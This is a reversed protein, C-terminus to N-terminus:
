KKQEGVAKKLAVRIDRERASPPERVSLVIQEGAPLAMLRNLDLETLGRVRVGQIALIEMGTSLGARGAASNARVTEVRLFSITPTETGANPQYFPRLEVSALVASVRLAPLMVAESVAPLLLAPAATEDVAAAPGGAAEKMRSVSAQFRTHDQLRTFAEDNEARFVDRFGADVAQELAELAGQKNRNFARVRALDYLTRAQDPRLAVAMELMGEAREYDAEELLGRVTERAMSSFSAIARRVMQREGSDEPAEAKKRLDAALKQKRRTSELAARGLESVLEDERVALAHEAKLAELVERSTGLTKAEATLSTVDRLNEFDAVLSKLARWRDLAPREPVVRRRKQFNAAIFADDKSRKGSRMAQLELWEVAEAMLEPPAWSHGGDFFVIRHVAKREELETELRRMEGYNFDEVGATGFFVFPVSKPIGSDLTPFGAACAIVGKAYGSMAITTAVRAGGSVGTTYVRQRDISFHATVDEIMAKAAAANDAWPGNRSNLSGAVIYGYKEAADRLREVPMHGRASADFCFIAPWRREKAYYSPVYLAYSQGPHAECEVKDLVRGLLSDDARLSGFIAAFLLLSLAVRM